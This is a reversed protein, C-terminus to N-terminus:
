KHLRGLLRKAGDLFGERTTAYVRVTNDRNAILVKSGDPSLTIPSMAMVDADCEFTLLLKGTRTDWVSAEKWSVGVARTGDPSFALRSIATMDSRGKELRIPSGGDSVWLQGTMDMSAYLVRAADFSLGYLLGPIRIKVPDPLNIPM